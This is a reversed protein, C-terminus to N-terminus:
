KGGRRRPEPGPRKPRLERGTLKEMRGLFRRDGAPRGTRTARRLQEQAEADEEALLERWPAGGQVLGMLTRDTVLPDSKTEGM